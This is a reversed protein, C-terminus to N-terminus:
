PSGGHSPKLKLIDFTFTVISEFMNLSVKGWKEDLGNPGIDDVDIGTDFIVDDSLYVFVKGNLCFANRCKLPVQKEKKGIVATVLSNRSREKITVKNVCIRGGIVLHDTQTKPKNIQNAIRYCKGNLVTVFPEEFAPKWYKETALKHWTNTGPDYLEYMYSHLSEGLFDVQEGYILIKGNLVVAKPLAYYGKLSAVSKWKNQSIDYCEVSRIAGDNCKGGIAYLFGDLHVLAFTSRELKMNALEKWSNSEPDYKWLSNLQVDLPDPDDDDEDDPREYEGGAVYLVGDVVISSPSVIGQSGAPKAFKWPPVVWTAERGSFYMITNDESGGIAIPATVINRPTFMYHLEDSKTNKSSRCKRAPLHFREIRKLLECCEAMNHKDFFSAEKTLETVPIVGLRITKLLKAAHQKRNSLDHSLWSILSTLVEEEKASCALNPELLVQEFLDACMGQLFAETKIFKSFDFAMARVACGLLDKLPEGYSKALVALTFVDECLVKGDYLDKELKMSCQAIIKDFQMYCALKLVETPVVTDDALNLKGTYAYELLKEFACGDGDIEVESKTSEVFGGSFMSEFYESAAALVMKHAQFSRGGINITIDCHKDEKLFSYFKQMMDKGHTKVVADTRDDLDEIGYKLKLILIRVDQGEGVFRSTRSSAM